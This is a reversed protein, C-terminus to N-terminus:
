RQVMVTGGTAQDPWCIGRSSFSVAHPLAVAATQSLLPTECRPISRNEWRGARLLSPRIRPSQGGSACDSFLAM